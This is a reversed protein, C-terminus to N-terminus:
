SAKKLLKFFGPYEAKMKENYAKKWAKKIQNLTYKKM